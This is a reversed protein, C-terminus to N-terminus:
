MSSLTSMLMDVRQNAINGVTEIDRLPVKNTKATHAFCHVAETVDNTISTIEPMSLDFLDCLDIFQEHEPKLSGTIATARQKEYLCPNVDFCPSLNWRGKRLLFGHNKLHDDTNNFIYSFCIRRLMQHTDRTGLEQQMKILLDFYSMREGDNAELLTMASMYPIRTGDFKGNERDFREVVLAANKGFRELRHETTEIGCSACLDLMTCELGIVDHDDQPHSFKALFLKGNDDRVSAKPHAGGLATTGADLLAKLAEHSESDNAVEHSAALLERLDVVPPIKVDDGLWKGKDRFRLAGIRTIDSVGLLYDIDTLARFLGDSQQERYRKEILRQGWRDPASDRFSGPLPSFSGGGYELKLTRDLAYAEPMALYNPDYSFTTTVGNRFSFRAVGAKCETKNVTTWVEVTDPM